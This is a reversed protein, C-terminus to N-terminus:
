PFKDMQLLGAMTSGTTWVKELVDVYDQTAEILTRQAQLYVAFELVGADYGSKALRLTERADPIINAKFEEARRLAGQHTSFADALQRLLDLQVTGLTATSDLVNARASRINGQNRNSVPIPFIINFWYQENGKTLSYNYAPGVSLNPYPEAEARQLLLKNKEVDLRAIQVQVNESTVFREMFPEDFPPPRSGLSGVVNETVLGPFGVIAALQQREGELLRVANALKAGVKNGDIQLLLLEQRDAITAKVREEGTKVSADTIVLLRQLVDVRTQAALVTFFQNRVATLLGYKDQILVKESQQQVRLAAARDLRLKGKVVVEQQIGANFASQKGNFVQPNNTDFRPNPYLGKQLTQGTASTVRALDRQLLPHNEVALRTLYPLTLQPRADSATEAGPAAVPEAGRAVPFNLATPPRPQPNLAGDAISRQVAAARGIRAAARPWPANAQVPLATFAAAVMPMLCRSRWPM